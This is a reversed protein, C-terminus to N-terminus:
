KWGRDGNRELRWIWKLNGGQPSRKETEWCDALFFDLCMGPPNFSFAVRTCCKVLSWLFGKGGEGTRADWAKPFTPDEWSVLCYAHPMLAHNRKQEWFFSNSKWTNSLVFFSLILMCTVHMETTGLSVLKIELIVSFPFQYFNYAHSMCERNNEFSGSKNGHMVPFLGYCSQDYNVLM